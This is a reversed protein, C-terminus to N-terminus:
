HNTASNAIFEAIVPSKNVGTVKGNVIKIYVLSGDFTEEEKTSKTSSPKTSKTSKTKKEKKKLEKSDNTTYFQNSELNHSLKIKYLGDDNQIAILKDINADLDTDKLWGRYTLMRVINGLVKKRRLDSPTNVPLLLQNVVSM